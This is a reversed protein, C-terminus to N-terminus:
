KKDDEHHDKVVSVGSAVSNRAGMVLVHWPLQKVGVSSSAAPAQETCISEGANKTMPAKFIVM